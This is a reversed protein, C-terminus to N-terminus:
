GSIFPTDAAAGAVNEDTESDLPLWKDILRDAIRGLPRNFTIAILAIATGATLFPHQRIREGTETTLDRAARKADETLRTPLLRERTGMARSRLASRSARAARLRESLLTFTDTM